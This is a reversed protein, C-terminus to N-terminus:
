TVTFALRLLRTTKGAHGSTVILTYRGHALRGLVTRVKRHGNLPLRGVAVTGRSQEIRFM